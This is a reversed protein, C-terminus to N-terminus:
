RRKICLHDTHHSCSSNCSVHMLKHDNISYRIKNAHAAALHVPELAGAPDGAEVEETEPSPKPTSASTITM